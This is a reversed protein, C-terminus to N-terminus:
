GICQEVPHSFRIGVVILDFDLWSVDSDQRVSM